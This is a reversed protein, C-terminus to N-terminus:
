VKEDILDPFIETKIGIVYFIGLLGEEGAIGTLPLNTLIAGFGIPLLLMPEYDKAIGLYILVGGVIMMVIMQWTLATPAAALLQLLNEIEM